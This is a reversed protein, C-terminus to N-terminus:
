VGIRLRVACPRAGDAPVRRRPTSQRAATRRWPFRRGRDPGRVTEGGDRRDGLRHRHGPGHPRRLGARRGQRGAPARIRRRHRPARFHAQGRHLASRFEQVGAVALGAARELDADDMVILPDNGGLELIMRRYGAREAISKGIRAGGTFTIMASHENTIMEDAIDAPDGTVVSFMAPPLGAQYLVDALRLASLPTKEAPKLVMCNNTAISPAIKHAVQNLPHNFPTIAAIVGLPERLSFIKRRPGKPTIDCSYVEGDDLICLQAALNFVDCARGVEYLTDKKSLGSEATILDSIEDKGSDLIAAAARLIEARRARSLTPKYDAAAQFADQVHRVQGKPVTATVAGTYPNLVDIRGEADVAQGNIRMTEHRIPDNVKVDM